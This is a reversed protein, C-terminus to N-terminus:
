GGVGVGPILFWPRTALHTRRGCIQPNFESGFLEFCLLLCLPVPRRSLSSVGHQVEREKDANEWSGRVECPTRGRRMRKWVM